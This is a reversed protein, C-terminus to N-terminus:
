PPSTHVCIHECRLPSFSKRIQKRTGNAITLTNNNIRNQSNPLFKRNLAHLMKLIRCLQKYRNTYRLELQLKKKIEETEKQEVKSCTKSNQQKKKKFTATPISYRAALQIKRPTLEFQKREDFDVTLNISNNISDKGSNRRRTRITSSCELTERERKKKEKENM